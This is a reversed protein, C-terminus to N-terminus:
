KLHDKRRYQGARHLDDRQLVISLVCVVATTTIELIKRAINVPVIFIMVNSSSQYLSPKTTLALTVWTERSFTAYITQRMQRETALDIM